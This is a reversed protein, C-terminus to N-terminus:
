YRGYFYALEAALLESGVVGEWVKVESVILGRLLTQLGPFLHFLGGGLDGSAPLRRSGLFTGDRWFECLDLTRRLVWTHFGATLTDSVSVAHNDLVVGIGTATVAPQKDQNNAPGVGLVPGAPFAPATLPIGALFVTFKAGEIGTPSPKLMSLYTAPTGGLGYIAIGPLGNGADAVFFPKFTPVTQRLHSANGSVDLWWEVRGASPEPLSEPRVWLWITPAAPPAGPRACCLPTGAADVPVPVEPPLAQGVAWQSAVGCVNTGGADGVKSGDVWTRGYEFREGLEWQPKPDPDWNVSVWNNAHPVFPTGEPVFYWRVRVTDEVDRYFRM